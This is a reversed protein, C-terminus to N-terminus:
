NEDDVTPDSDEFPANGQNSSDVGDVNNGHGNNNKTTFNVLLALDQLDFGGNNQDTHTLEMLYIVDKPGIKVRGQGDLYPKIFDEITPQQYMPTTTPPYDGNVLAVVNKTSNTSSYFTSWGGYNYRGGFNIAHGVPVTAKFVVKNANVKNQTDYFIRSFSSGAISVLAWEWRTIQGWNNTWVVKVSAGIVRVEMDVEEKPTLTGPPTVTVIDTVVEPYTINWTLNPKVGVQVITPNATLSGVPVLPDQQASSRGTAFVSLALVAVALAAPHSTKM